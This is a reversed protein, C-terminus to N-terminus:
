GGRGRGHSHGTGLETTVLAASRSLSELPLRLPKRTPKSGTWNGLPQGLARRTPNRRSDGRMEYDGYGHGECDGPNQERAIDRALEEDSLLGENLDNEMKNEV